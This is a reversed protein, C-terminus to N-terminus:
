LLEVIRDLQEQVSAVKLYDETQDVMGQLNDLSADDMKGVTGGNTLRNPQIQPDFRFYQDGMLEGMMMDTSRAQSDFIATIIPVGANSTGWQGIGWHKWAPYHISSIGCGISVINIRRGALKPYAKAFAAMSPNNAFIGGDIAVAKGAAMESPDFYIPAASSADVVDLLNLDDKSGAAVHFLPGASQLVPRPIGVIKAQQRQGMEYYTGLFNKDLDSLRIGGFVDTLVARKRTASYPPGWWDVPDKSLRERLSVRREFIERGRSLYINLIDTPNGYAKRGLKPAVNASSLGAAIICGTSTGAFMDFRDAVKSKGAARLKDDLEIVIRAPIVGKLGGGDISLVWFPNENQDSGAQQAIAPSGAFLGFASLFARRNLVM